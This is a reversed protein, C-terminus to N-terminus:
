CWEVWSVHPLNALLHFTIDITETIYITYHEFFFSYGLQSLLASPELFFPIQIFIRVDCVDCLVFAHVDRCM